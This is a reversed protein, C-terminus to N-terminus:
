DVEPTEPAITLQMSATELKSDRVVAFEVTGVKREIHAPMVTELSQPGDIAAGTFKDRFILDGEQLTTAAGDSISKVKMMWRGEEYESVLDIGNALSVLRVAKVALLGTQSQEFQDLYRVATRAYGDPDVTLDSLVLGAVSAGPTVPTDNVSVITIGPQLWSGVVALDATPNIRSVVVSPKGQVIRNVEFFPMRVDWVAFTIQQDILQVPPATPRAVADTTAVPEVAADSVAPAIEAVPEASPESVSADPEAVVANEASPLTAAGVDVGAVDASRTESPSVPGSLIEAAPEKTGTDLVFVLGAAVAAAIMGGMMMGGSRRPASPAEVGAKNEPLELQTETLTPTAKTHAQPVAAGHRQPYIPLVGPTRFLALWDSATKVRDKPLCKMATDIAELFGKPYGAFRGSLPKYVDPRGEAIAALRVQANVPAEGGILHYLTAGLAYLDSFPGQASGAVYLEQPSYGDKVVHVTSLARGQHAADDRAAGFDILVPEGTPGILVNDPSIDRHLMGNEHICKVASLLKETIRVVEEPAFKASDGEIVQLLDRGDIYDLAMYATGNDEFVQHVSVINPHALRALNQAECIFLRVMSQLETQYARTRAMVVDKSRRCFTSQFCEKIVVSRNLSDKALYTIGFGGNNLFRTITYQGKLLKTGPQLEDVEGSFTESSLDVINQHAM